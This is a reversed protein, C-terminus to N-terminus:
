QTAFSQFYVKLVPGTDSEWDPNAPMKAESKADPKEKNPVDEKAEKDKTAPKARADIGLRENILKAIERKLALKGEATRVEALSKSSLITYIADEVVPLKDALKTKDYAKEFHLAIKARIYTEPDKLNSLFEQELPVIDGLETKPKASGGKMKMAFFGGGGLVAVLALLIPLKGKKKKNPAPEAAEVVVESESM